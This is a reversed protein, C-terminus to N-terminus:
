LESIKNLIEQVIEDLSKKFDNKVEIDVEESVRDFQGLDSISRRCAEVISDGRELSRILAVRQDVNIYVSIIDYGSRKLSRM